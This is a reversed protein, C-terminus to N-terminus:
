FSVFSPSIGTYVGVVKKKYEKELQNLLKSILDDIHPLLFFTANHKFNLLSHCSYKGHNSFDEQSKVDDFYIIIMKEDDVYAEKLDNESSVMVRKTKDYAAILSDVPHEVSSLYTKEKINRLNEFCTKTKLKCQSFDEVSLNNEVFVVTLTDKDAQSKVFTVFEDGSLHKLTPM